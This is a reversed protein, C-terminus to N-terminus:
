QWPRAALKQRVQAVVPAWDGAKAQRTIRVSPYWPSDDRGEHWYWLRGRSFPLMLHVPTGLAGALHATTNSVTVVADCARILAALGDLDALNDVGPAPALEIGTAEKLARREAATDGYQLDVFRVGELGLLPALERLAMSKDAGLKRAASSWSVGCVPRGDKSLQERLARARSEDAVLYSRRGAPFDEWRKRAHAGLNGLPVQADCPERPVQERPIVSVGPFSRRVLPVLRADVAVVTRRAVGDLADLMGLHLVQDGVGQEGWALLTGAVPGGRWMPQRLSIWGGDPNTRWRSDYKAWGREFDGLM